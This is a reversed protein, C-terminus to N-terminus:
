GAEDRFLRNMATAGDDIVPRIQKRYIQETVTSGGTHGVLRAIQDITVGSDSLLSVFSYRLERPTWEAAPLGAATLVRRFGRRVNAADLEIRDRLRVRRREGGM